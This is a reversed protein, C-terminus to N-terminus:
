KEQWMRAIRFVFSFLGERRIALIVKSIAIRIQQQNSFALKIRTSIHTHKSADGIPGISPILQEKLMSWDANLKIKPLLDPYQHKGRTSCWQAFCDETLTSFPDPYKTQLDGRMRYILRHAATIPHGNDFHSYAWPQSSLPDNEVNGMEKSYWGVLANVAGNDSAYKGTMLLHAGSDFGTFHYFGLPEGNVSFNSNWDGAVTRTTLNWPAVNFRASRLIGVGGFMAPALDIWRQDTFIGHPINDQCFYYTRDSWWEAFRRGNDSARVGIFGLNYIGHKLSCIENDIIREISSEPHIQHPTLLIDSIELQSVLDDLRSFLVMDPDFYLVAHCDPRALLQSLVVPKIATSLEVINHTFAWPKWRPIGLNCLPMVEDWDEKDILEPAPPEDALALVIRFEPHYHRLSNILLRVKPLYNCAASTFAYIKKSNM